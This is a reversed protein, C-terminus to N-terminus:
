ATGVGSSTPTERVRKWWFELAVSLLLIILLTLVSAPETDLTTVLFALFAVSSTLIALVLLELRAGTDSRVRLHAVTALMFVLLAAASGISAIATLSFGVALIVAVAASLLLGMPARGALKRGM